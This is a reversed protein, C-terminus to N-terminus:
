PLKSFKQIIKKGNVFDAKLLYIAPQLQGIDITVQNSNIENASMMKRGSIDFIEIAFLQNQFGEVTIKSYAPNPYINILGEESNEAIGTTLSSSITWNEALSNDSNVDKLKLFFGGGDAEAPWPLSDHYILSDIINGLGDVLIIKESKNSLNRTFEGFATSGYVREFTSKDGALIIKSGAGITSNAPFQYSIGLERFYYGTLNVTQSGNNTIEIFELDDSEIEGVPSPNYNIKSIVLSPISPNSCASSNNLRTNLWNIRTQIWEKMKVIEGSHDPITGWRNNERVRAESILATLQDIRESIASYNLPSKSNTLEKWRKTLYCKFTTNNYLDRWFKSGTNGGDDFQWVNTHSRDFGWHFLDNGYTLDFDWVPGARLKGNRDKHFYTSYQYADANSALENILIFDIFSPLDIISPFGNSVSANQATATKQLNNFQSQIYNNQQTTIEWPDPDHHIYNTWGYYSQMTWAIPDGGTDKDAKTVYGGTIEPATNDTESMKVINIRESDIKLKEMFIYLGKYDGNIVVECYRGRAAYNGLSRSLDYSLYNRILSPDWAISNLIWDHEDPMELISVNNNSINDEKLTTLGYPKKPLAQSSSGRKEIAIRGIYNLYDPNNADNLYNRSGDSRFIIKMSAPIKPEDPIELPWGTNPNKDTDIIVIPLNSSTFVQAESIISCLLLISILLLKKM